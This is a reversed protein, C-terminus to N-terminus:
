KYQIYQLTLTSGKGQLVVFCSGGKVRRPSAVWAESLGQSAVVAAM